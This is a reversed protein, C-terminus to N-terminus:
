GGVEGDITTSDVNAQKQRSWGHVGRCRGGRGWKEGAGGERRVREFIMGPQQSSSRRSHQAASGSGAQGARPM